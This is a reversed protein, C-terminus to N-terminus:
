IGFIGIFITNRTFYVNFAFFLLIEMIIEMSNDYDNILYWTMRLDNYM